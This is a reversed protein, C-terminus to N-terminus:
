EALNRYRRAKRRIMGTALLLGTGVLLLTRPEPTTAPEASADLETINPSSTQILEYMEEDRGDTWAFDGVSNVFVQDASGSLIFDLNSGSGFYVGNPDGNPSYLSGLGIWGGNCTEKSANFGEPTSGCATGNDYALVPAIASNSTAVGNSYTVYCTPSAIGCGSTGWVVVDGATDIGYISHGNDNGLNVVSYSDALVPRTVSSLVVIVTFLVSGLGPAFRRM